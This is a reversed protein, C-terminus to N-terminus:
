GPPDREEFTKLLIPQFRPRYGTDLRRRKGEIHAISVTPSTEFRAEVLISFDRPIGVLSCATSFGCPRAARVDPFRAAIDPRAINPATTVLVRRLTRDDGLPEVAVIRIGRPPGDPGLAWGSAEPQVALTVPPLVESGVLKGGADGADLRTIKLDAM